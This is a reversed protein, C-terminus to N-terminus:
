KLPTSHAIAVTRVLRPGAYQGGVVRRLVGRLTAYYVAGSVVDAARGGVGQGGVQTALYAQARRYLAKVNFPDIELVKECNKCM